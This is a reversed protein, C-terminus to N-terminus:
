VPTELYDSNPSIGPQLCAYRGVRNTNVFAIRRAKEAGSSLGFHQVYTNISYDFRFTSETQYDILYFLNTYDYDWDNLQKASSM